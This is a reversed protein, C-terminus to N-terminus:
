VWGVMYGWHPLKQIVEQSDSQSNDKRVIGNATQNIGESIELMKIDFGIFLKWLCRRTNGCLLLFILCLIGNRLWKLM